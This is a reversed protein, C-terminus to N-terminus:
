EDDRRPATDIVRRLATGAETAHGRLADLLAETWDDSPKAAIADAVAAANAWHGRSQPATPPM